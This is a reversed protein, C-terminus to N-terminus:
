YLQMMSSAWSHHPAAKFSPRCRMWHVDDCVQADLLPHCSWSRLAHNVEYLRGPAAQLDQEERDESLAGHIYV